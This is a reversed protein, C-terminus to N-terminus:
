AVNSFDPVAPGGQAITNGSVEITEPTTGSGMANSLSLGTTLGSVAGSLAGFGIELGLGLGSTDGIAAEQSALTIDIGALRAARQKEALELNKQITTKDQGMEFGIARGIARVSREGLDQNRAQGRAQLAKRTLDFNKDAAAEGERKATEEAQHRQLKASARAAEKQAKATEQAGVASTTTSAITTVAAFIGVSISVPDCM